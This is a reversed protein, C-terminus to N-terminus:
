GGTSPRAAAAPPAVRGMERVFAPLAWVLGIVGPVAAAIVITLWPQDPPGGIMFMPFLRSAIGLLLGSAGFHIAGHLFPAAPLRVSALQIQLFGNAALVALAVILPTARFGAAGGILFPPAALEALMRNDHFLPLFRLLPFVVVIAVAFLIATPPSTSRTV